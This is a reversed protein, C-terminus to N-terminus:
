GYPNNLYHYHIFLFLFYHPEKLFSIYISTHREPLHLKYELLIRFTFFLQICHICEKFIISFAISRQPRFLTTHFIVSVLLLILFVLCGTRESTRRAEGDRRTDCLLALEERLRRRRCCSDARRAERAFQHQMCFIEVSIPYRYM